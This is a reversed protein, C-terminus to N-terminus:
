WFVQSLDAFNLNTTEILSTREHLTSVLRFLM